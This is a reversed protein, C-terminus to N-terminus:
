VLVKDKNSETKKVYKSDDGSGFKNDLLFWLTGGLCVSSYAGCIIGIMLPLTFDKMSQVGMIYLAAVMIFTTLSTNISRTLTSSIAKNVVNAKDERTKAGIMTERIRDFIVITANISYGVITLMCAIFTNGVTIQSIAYFGLVVLVDHLLPLVSGIAFSFTRFRIFIYILMAITAVTVAVVSDKKMEDSVTGSITEEQIDKDRVKYEKKLAKEIAEKTEIDKSLDRMAVIASKEGKIPSVQVALKATDKFLDEIEKNSPLKGYKDFSIEMQTGGRFDLGYAFIEGSEKKSLGMGIFGVVILVLSIVYYVKKNRVFNVVPLSFKSSFMGEKNLGMHYLAWIISKTIVLATFMSLVIGLGLTQAFGKITGSGLTGLVIAAVLTTVNGDLIASFAKEFGGSIANKVQKGAVIEEKIRTFIICNADVAMGISLIIGAIGPLTLTVELVNLLFVMLAVYLALALSSAFGPVRYVIIMFLMVIAIGIAAAVLSTSLAESGLQAGVATSRLTELQVPMAGIRIYTALKDAEDYTFNGSIQAEGGTIPENITASSVKEGGYYTELVKGTNDTTIKAFKEGGKQTFKLSVMYSGASTQEQSTVAQADDIDDGNLLVEDSGELKFEVQGPQSLEKFVETEDTVGPINVSIRKTGEKQVTAEKTYAQVRLDLKEMTDAIEQETAKGKVEYTISAGGRLDLGLRIDKAKFKGGIGCLVTYILGATILIIVVLSIISRKKSKVM